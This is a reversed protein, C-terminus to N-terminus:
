NDNASEKFLTKTNLVFDIEEYLKQLSASNINVLFFEDGKFAKWRWDLQDITQYRGNDFWWAAYIIDSGKHLTGIYIEKGKVARTNIQKFEYGSGTWCIMPNHETGYFREIKKIYILIDAKQLKVVDNSLLSKTYGNTFSSSIVATASPSTLGIRFGTAAVSILVL